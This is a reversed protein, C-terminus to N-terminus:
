ATERRFLKFQWAKKTEPKIRVLHSLRFGPVWLVEQGSCVLPWTTRAKQPLKLNIMLDSLKTVQGDLGLLRIRDGPRRARIILPQEVSGVDMRAQFLDQDAYCQDEIWTRDLVQEVQLQWGQALEVVSPATIVQVVGPKIAPYEGLHPDAQGHLVHFYEGEVVVRLRAILDTQSGAMGGKLLILGREICEFGVDRLGPLHYAIARRLLYRQIALPLELVGSTRFTLHDEGQKVLNVEWAHDTLQQLVSYDDKLSQGMRLLAEGISPNYDKLLPILEQRLRNRFYLRDLNSRDTIPHLNNEAIYQQIEERWTSLLPRILPIEESWPNPCIRYEMGGLGALGTGRLLHMLITEVQDDATHAVAVAAARVAQAQEFLSRYRLIRAAEEISLSSKKSYDMVDVRCSIIEVSLQQAFDKVLRAEDDAEPRLQHNVHVAYLPYGAMWLVHLLCLSDPGGSLGVLLLNKARIECRQQLISLVQNVM